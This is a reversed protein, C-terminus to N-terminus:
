DRYYIIILCVLAIFSMTLGAFFTFPRYVFRVLHEGKDLYIARILFDCLYVESIRGDAYAKWGPYYTDSLVLFGDNEMYAKIMIENPSYKIFQTYSNDKLPAGNCILMDDPLDKEIIISYRLDFDPDALRKLIDDTNFMEEARHVIFARPFAAKNEYIYDNGENYVERLGKGSLPGRNGYIYKIGLFDLYRRLLDFYTGRIGIFRSFEDFRKPKLVGSHDIISLQYICNRNPELVSAAGVPHVRFPANETLKRLYVISNPYTLSGPRPTTSDPISLFIDTLFLFGVLGTYLINRKFSVLLFVALLSIYYFVAPNDKYEERVPSYRTVYALFVALAFVIFIFRTNKDRGKLESLLNLGIGVIVALAIYITSTYKSWWIHSILPLM